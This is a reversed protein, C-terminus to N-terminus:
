SVRIYNGEYGEQEESCLRYTYDVLWGREESVRESLFRHPYPETEVLSFPLHARTLSASVSHRTCSTLIIQGWWDFDYKGRRRVFVALPTM